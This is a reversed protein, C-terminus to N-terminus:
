PESIEWAVVGRDAGDTSTIIFSVGASRASVRLSGVTSDDQPTLKIRSNATVLATSVTVQGASLTAAGRATPLRPDNAGLAVPNAADAPAVNMKVGGLTSVTAPDGVSVADAIRADTQTTTYFQNDPPRVPAGLALQLSRWTTSPAAAPVKFGALLTERRTGKSDFLVATYTALPATSDTTSDITFSAITLTTGAVTCSVSKYFGAGGAAGGLIPTGDSAFFNQSAYIKLTATPGGYTWNPVDRGAVTVTTAYARLSTAALAALLLAFASLLRFLRGHTRRM